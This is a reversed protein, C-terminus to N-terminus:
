NVWELSVLFHTFVLYLSSFQSNTYFPKGNKRADVESCAPKSDCFLVLFHLLILVHGVFVASDTGVGGTQDRLINGEPYLNVNKLTSKYKQSAQELRLCRLDGKTSTQSKYEQHQRM